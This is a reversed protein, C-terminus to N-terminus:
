RNNESASKVTKEAPEKIMKVPGEKIVGDDKARQGEKINTIGVTKRLYLETMRANIGADIKDSQASVWATQAGLL